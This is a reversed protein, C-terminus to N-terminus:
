CASRRMSTIRIAVAVGGGERNEPLIPQVKQAVIQEVNLQQANTQARVPGGALLGGIVTVIVVHIRVM